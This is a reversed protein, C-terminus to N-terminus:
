IVDTEITKKKKNPKENTQYLKSTIAPSSFGAIVNRLIKRSDINKRLKSILEASSVNEVLNCM